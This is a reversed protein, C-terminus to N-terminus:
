NTRKVLVSRRRSGFGILVEWRDGVQKALVGIEDNLHHAKELDCLRLPLGVLAEVDLDATDTVSNKLSNTDEPLYKMQEHMMQPMNNNGALSSIRRDVKSLMLNKM